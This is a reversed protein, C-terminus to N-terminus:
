GHHTEMMRARLRSAAVHEGEAELLAALQGLAETHRPQLYLVKRYWSQAALRDGGSEALLGLWYLVQPQEAHQQHLQRCLVLARGTQGQDALQRVQQLQLELESNADNALSADHPPHQVPQGPVAALPRRTISREKGQRATDAPTSDGHSGGHRGLWSRLRKLGDAAPAKDDDPVAVNAAGGTLVSGSRAHCKVAQLEAQNRAFVFALPMGLPKLGMAMVVTTEAPGSFLLGDESLTAMLRSLVQEQTARDFYILLNRCFIIDYRDSSMTAASDIINGQRFSVQALVQPQLQYGAATESFYRQRFSLHQGRFSNRSYLGLKARQLQIESIDMAEVQFCEAAIGADLLAMVISYPEEGSSCPLSLIRLPRRPQKGLRQWVLRTLATFSEGYRFFWTEPVLLADVLAKVEEASRQLLQWYAEPDAQGAQQQRYRLIGEVVSAGISDIDLGILEKIFRAFRLDAM